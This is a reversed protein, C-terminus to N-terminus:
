PVVRDAPRAIIVGRDPGEEDFPGSTETVTTAQAWDSSTAVDRLHLYIRAILVTSLTWDPVYAVLFLPDPFVTFALLNIIQFILIVTNYFIGDQLLCSSLNKCRFRSTFYSRQYAAWVLLVWVISEFILAGVWGSWLWAPKNSIACIGPVQVYSAFADEVAM